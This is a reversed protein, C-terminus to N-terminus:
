SECRGQAAPSFFFFFRLKSNSFLFLFVLSTVAHVSCTLGSVCNCDHGTIGCWVEERWKTEARRCHPKKKFALKIFVTKKMLCEDKGGEKGFDRGVYFVLNGEWVVWGSREFGVWEVLLRRGTGEWGWCPEWDAWM